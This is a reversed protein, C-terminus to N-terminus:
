APTAEQRPSPAPARPDASDEPPLLHTLPVHAEIITGKRSSEIELRGDLRELREQMNRLGLGASGSGGVPAMGQGNDSIRLTAGESHGFLRVELATARAHREVNTLAEQAVRYLAIKAEQDLRNRFVVTDFRTDIGTRAGFEECLAQIAPGLGLDDLVGPRLDRSIRRVEHIAGALATAATDLSETARADGSRVRRKALELAYRAGVLIQSISDHLERAVRGREEEQTDFIRQTLAKLRISSTRRERINTILGSLFVAALATLTIAATWLFTEEVRTQVDARAADVGHLVDDIFIGTGLAWQWDQLGVVYSVMRADEGTSPREWIYDHYGGGQRAIEILRDVVPTGEADTTGTLTQGILDTQRPSVLNTGDYDYVFFFGDQGYIMAALIQTVRLKAEEDDPLARGYESAIATRAISLYNKLERKKAEILQRELGAIEREALRGAQLAVIGAIVAAAILLPIAAVLMVRRSVAPGFSSPLDLRM